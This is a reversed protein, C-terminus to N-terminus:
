ASRQASWFVQLKQAARLSRRIERLGDKPLEAAEALSDTAWDAFAQEGWNDPDSVM